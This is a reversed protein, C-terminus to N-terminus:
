YHHFLEHVIRKYSDFLAHDPIRMQLATLISTYYWRQQDKGRSFREWVSEGHTKIDTQLSRLNHLKDACTVICVSKPATKLSDITQKKREEWPLSKNPESCGKVMELIDEGFQEQIMEETTETDELTDHLLGAIVLEEECGTQELLMAVSFPHTIYPTDTAKRVQKRHARAAFAIAEDILTLGGM